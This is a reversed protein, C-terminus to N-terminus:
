LEDAVQLGSGGGLGPGPHTSAGIHCLGKVPTRHNVSDPVAALRLVPRDRLGRWLPRRRRPQHEDGRPRGAVAGRARCSSRTSTASTGACSRRSGTPTPRACAGRDLRRGRADDIEGRRTARSWARRRPCRCGSSRRARPRARRISRPAAPRRLDDAGRAADRARGREVAKSVADLGDTLHILAVEDLAPDSWDPVGSWRTTSSSTARATASLRAGAGADRGGGDAPLLRGYLQNPTVSCIVSKRATSWAARRGAGCRHRARRGGRDADVDAGTRIRGGQEEILGSSPRRGGARRRGRRGARGGGRARLRHGQGDRGLLGRRAGLGAHLVWPAFLARALESGFATELWARAPGCRRAWSPSCAARGAGGRRGRWWGRRRGAGAAPRGAAGFLLEANASSMGVEAATRPATARAGARRSPAVNAARDTTLVLSAGTPGCCPPRTATNASSWGTARWTTAWRPSLGAVHHVPRLDGGDRRAPLGAATIEDTRM